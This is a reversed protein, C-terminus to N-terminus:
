LSVVKYEIKFPRRKFDVSFSETDQQFDARRNRQLVDDYGYRKQDQGRKRIREPDHCRCRDARDAFEIGERNQRRKCDVSGNGGHARLVQARPLLLAGDLRHIGARNDGICDRDDNEEPRLKEGFLDNGHESRFGFDDGRARRVQFSVAEIVNEHRIHETHVTQEDARPM